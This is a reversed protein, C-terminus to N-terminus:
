ILLFLYSYSYIFFLFLFLSYFSVETFHKALLHQQTLLHVYKIYSDVRGTEKLYEILKMTALVREDEYAPDEPLARLANLLALM